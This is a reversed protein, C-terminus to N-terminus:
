RDRGTPGRKTLIISTLVYSPASKMPSLSRWTPEATGRVEPRASGLDITRSERAALTLLRAFIDRVGEAVNPKRFEMTKRKINGKAFNKNDIRSLTKMFRTSDTM